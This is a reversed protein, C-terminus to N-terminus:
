RIVLGKEINNKLHINKLADRFHLQVKRKLKSEIEKVETKKYHIDIFLDVDSNITNEAKAISGFLIIKRNLFERELGETVNYLRDKWYLNSLGSFLYHGRNARFFMYIGKINSILIKEETYYKLLKSATPPSIKRIRAYERVSIERYVDEFFVSLINFIELM